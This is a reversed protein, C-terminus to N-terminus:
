PKLMRKLIKGTATMPLAEVIDLHKPCKYDALHQKSWKILEKESISHGEKLIVFAKVEEGFRPHEIGIVAVLHVSPHKMYVEEVERPYVNYGGSIILEKLRDVVYIYGEDDFRVIDGTHLWGDIITKATEQPKKYYGKMVNHGRIVLEGEQGVPLEHGNKDIVKMTIGPLPQGISGPKRQFELHNFAAVPSSESLGYGEIVPVQLKEEFQKLVEIPMSAGGSIAVKLTQAIEKLYDGKNKEAYALLGIFMTPVGALHTVKHEHIQQLVTKPVFRSILVLASGALISTNMILSQGFTHFLPLIAISVDTGKQNTLSQCAQANCLMNSQSLEAGKATGTTGSTYLIVCSDQATRCVTDFTDRGTNLWQNFSYAAVPKQSETTEILIFHECFDAKEYGDYGFKGIPMADSGQYSILAVADSDKLHYAVEDSKLMVNLPVVVAGIKQIAYYAIVFEPTNPCSLAIKDDPQIHLQTLHDAIANVKKNLESYTMKLDHFILAINNPRFTANRELNTALNYM